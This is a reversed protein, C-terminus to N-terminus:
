PPDPLTQTFTEAVPNTATTVVHELPVQVMPAAFVDLDWSMRMRILEAGGYMHRAEPAAQTVWSGGIFRVSTRFLKKIAVMCKRRVAEAEAWTEGWILCEVTWTERLIADYMTGDPAIRPGTEIPSRIDFDTPIFVVRTRASNDEQALRFAGVPLNPIAVASAIAAVVEEFEDM